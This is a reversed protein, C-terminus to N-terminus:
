VHVHRRPLDQLLRRSGRSSQAATIGVAPLHDGVAEEDRPRVADDQVVVAECRLLTADGARCGFDEGSKKRDPIAGRRLDLARRDLEIESPDTFEHSVRHERREEAHVRRPEAVSRARSLEELPTEGSETEIGESLGVLEGARAKRLLRACALKLRVASTEANCAEVSHQAELPACLT